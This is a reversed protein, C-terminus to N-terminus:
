TEGKEAMKQIRLATEASCMLDRTTAIHGTEIDAAFDSLWDRECPIGALVVPAAAGEGYLTVSGDTYCFTM